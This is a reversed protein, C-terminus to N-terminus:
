QRRHQRRYESPAVGEIRKFCLRMRVADRFGSDTALRKLPTKTEALQRKTREIRLRLIEDSISRGLVAQFRRELTRRNVHAARAVDPVHIPEHSHESAFRLAEAVIPDDVALADSSQRAVLGVPPLAIPESPAPAGDMMQDLLEAARYGVREYGMEISSLMPEAHNCIVTENGVGVMAAAHPVAVGKHNCACALYRALLDHAVGVGIPPKWTDIWEDIRSVPQQWFSSKRGAHRSGTLTTCPLGAEAAAAEFAKRQDQPKHDYGLFGLQRFGRAILHQAAIRGAAYYDASVLPFDTVPSQAWVNVMPINFRRADAALKPTARAIIGDCTEWFDPSTMMQGAYADIICNWRGCQRAYEQTGAFVGHHHKYPWALELMIAINRMKPM